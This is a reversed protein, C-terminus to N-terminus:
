LCHLCIIPLTDYKHSSQLAMTQLPLTEMPHYLSRTWGEHARGLSDIIPDMGFMM